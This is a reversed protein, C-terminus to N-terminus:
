IMGKPVFEVGCWAGWARRPTGRGEDDNARGRRGGRTRQGQPACGTSPGRPCTICAHAGSAEHPPLPLVPHPPPGSREKRVQYCLASKTEFAHVTTVLRGWGTGYRPEAQHLVGRKRYFHLIAEHLYFQFSRQKM